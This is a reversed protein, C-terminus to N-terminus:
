KSAWVNFRENLEAQHEVWWETNLLVSGKLNDPHTPLDRAIKPDVEAVAKIHTPGYPITAASIAQNEPQSAFKIFDYALDINSSGKVIVWSDLAYLQGKWVIKFNRGEKVAASIRGNYASTMVVDGAALWQPPQAGAEWWQLYPKIEDLKKFARDIGSSTSLVKYVDAASVGDALLATELTSKASKRLARKGPWKKVNWFDAWSKPGEGEIKDADYALVFAWVITGVGCEGMVAAPIFSKKGGVRNWDIIELLGEECANILEPAEVQVLDWTVNKVEVMAKIKAMEGNYSEDLIKKGTKKMFPDFFAKRQAEQYAGGWSVISLDRADSITPISISSLFAISIFIAIFISMRKM